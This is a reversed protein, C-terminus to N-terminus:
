IDATMSMDLNWGSLYANIPAEYGLAKRPRELDHHDIWRGFTKKAEELSDLNGFYPAEEKASRHTRETKGDTRPHKVRPCIHETGHERCRKDLTSRGKGGRVSCFETGHDTLLQRPAGFMAVTKSIVDIATEASTCAGIHYSLIFRSRDDVIWISHYTV